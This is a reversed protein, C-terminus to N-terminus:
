ICELRTIWDNFHRCRERLETLGIDEAVLPGVQAKQGEYDPLHRIIRKSPADQPKDNIEEPKKGAIEKKLRDIYTQSDPYMTKLRDPNVLLFAEFEHLQVYPIFQPHNIDLAIASELTDIKQYPDTMSQIATTYPSLDDKPFAYLDLMSSYWYMSNNRDSQIWNTVDSRFKIYKLLGGKAPKNNLRDWGTRIKRCAVSIGFSAFHKILVDNVFTEECSGEVIINLYKMPPGRYYKEGL